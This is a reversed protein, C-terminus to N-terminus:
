SSRRGCVSMCVAAAVVVVTAPHNEEKGTIRKGYKTKRKLMLFRHLLFLSDSRLPKATTASALRDMWGKVHGPVPSATQGDALRGHEWRGTTQYTKIKTTTATEPLYNLTVGTEGVVGGGGRWWCFLFYFPTHQVIWDSPYACLPRNTPREGETQRGRNTKLKGVM